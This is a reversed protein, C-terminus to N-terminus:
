QPDQQQRALKRLRPLRRSEISAWATKRQGTKAHHSIVVWGLRLQKARGTASGAIARPAKIVRRVFERIVPHDKKTARRELAKRVDKAAKYPDDGIVDLLVRDLPDFAGKAKGRRRRAEREHALIDKVQSSLSGDRMTPVRFLCADLKDAIVGAAHARDAAVHARLESLWDFAMERSVLELDLAATQGAPVKTAPWILSGWATRTPPPAPVNALEPPTVLVVFGIERDWYRARQEHQEVAHWDKCAREVATVVTTMFPDVAL